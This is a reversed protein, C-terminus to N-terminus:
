DKKERDTTYFAITLICAVTVKGKTRQIHVRHRKALYFMSQPYKMVPQQPSWNLKLPLHHCTPPFSKLTTVEHSFFTRCSVTILYHSSLPRIVYRMHSFHCYPVFHWDYFKISIHAQRLSLILVFRVSIAQTSMSSKCPEPYSGTGPNQLCIFWNICHWYWCFCM